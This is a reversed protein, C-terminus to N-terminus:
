VSAEILRILLLGILANTDWPSNQQVDDKGFVQKAQCKGQSAVETLVYILNEKEKSMFIFIFVFECTKIKLKFIVRVRKKKNKKLDSQFVANPDAITISDIITSPRPTTSNDKVHLHANTRTWSLLFLAATTM